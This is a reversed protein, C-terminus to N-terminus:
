GKVRELTIETMRLGDEDTGPQVMQVRYTTEEHATVGDKIRILDSVVVDWWDPIAVLFEIEKHAMQATYYRTVGLRQYRFYHSHLLALEEIPMAGNEAINTTRYVELIGDDYTM